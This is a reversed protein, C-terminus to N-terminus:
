RERSRSPRLTDLSGHRRANEARSTTNRRRAWPSGGVLWAAATRAPAHGARRGRPETEMFVARRSPHRAGGRRATNTKRAVGGARADERRDAHPLGHDRVLRQPSPATRRHGAQQPEPVGSPGSRRAGRRDRAPLRPRQGEPMLWLNTQGQAHKDICSAVCSHQAAAEELIERVTAAPRIIYGDSEFGNGDLGAARRAIAEDSAEHRRMERELEALLADPDAPYRDEVSGRIRQQM